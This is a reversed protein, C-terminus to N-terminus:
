WWREKVVMSRVALMFESGTLPEDSMREDAPLMM